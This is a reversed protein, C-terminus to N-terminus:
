GLKLRDERQTMVDTLALICSYAEKKSLNTVTVTKGSRNGFDFTRIPVSSPDVRPAARKKTVKQLVPSFSENIRFLEEQPTEMDNTALVAYPIKLEASSKVKVKCPCATIIFKSGSSGEKFQAPRGRRRDSKRTAIFNELEEDKGEWPNNSLKCHPHRNQWSKLARLVEDKGDYFAPLIPKETLSNRGYKLTALDKKAAQLEVDFLRETDLFPGKKSKPDFIWRIKYGKHDVEFGGSELPKKEFNEMNTATVERPIRAIWYGLNELSHSEFYSYPLFFYNGGSHGERALSPFDVASDCAGLGAKQAEDLSLDMGRPPSISYGLKRSVLYYFENAGFEYLRNLFRGILDDNIGRPREKFFKSVEPVQYPQSNYDSELKNLAEDVSSLILKESFLAVVSLVRFVDGNEVSHRGKKLLLSNVYSVLNTKSFTSILRELESYDVGAVVNAEKLM